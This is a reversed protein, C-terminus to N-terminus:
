GLDIVYSAGSLCVAVQECMYICTAIELETMALCSLNTSMHQPAPDNNSPYRDLQSDCELLDGAM